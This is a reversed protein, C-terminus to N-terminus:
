ARQQQAIRPQTEVMKREEPRTRVEIDEVVLELTTIVSEFLTRDITVAHETKAADLERYLLGIAVKMPSTRRLLDLSGKAGMVKEM